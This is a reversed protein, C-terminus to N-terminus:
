PRPADQRYPTRALYLALRAALPPKDRPDPLLAIAREQWTVAADFDGASACAAALTDLLNPRTRGTLDCARTASAVARPADRLTPDPCTALLRALEDLADPDDPRLHVAEGLDAMAQAFQGMRGRVVGRRHYATALKPDLRIADTQDDVARMLDGTEAFFAGRDTFPLPSRPDLRIAETLDAIARDFERRDARVLGRHHYLTPDAPDLRVAEDLDALAADLVRRDAWVLARNHRAQAFGPDLRIAESFDALARDLEGKARWASGRNDRAMADAPDLRIAETLDAVALDYEGRLLRFNGRNQLASAYSPDLRVAEDYDALAKADDGKLRWVNARSNRYAASRPDLRIAEDYDALARDYERKKGWEIGRDYCAWASPSSDLLSRLTEPEVPSRLFHVTGDAILVHFGGPHYSSAAATSPTDPDLVLDDPETWPVGQRTEVVAIGRPRGDAGAGVRYMRYNSLSAVGGPAAPCAFVAPMAALLPRNHPGDWPEDLRFKRYLAEEGLFPLLEVRWSLLPRGARDAVAPRPFGQHAAAYDQLARGLCAENGVCTSRRAVERSASAVPVILMVVPILVCGVAGLVIGAVAMGKGRLGEKGTERAIDSLADAGLVIAPLGAFLTCFPSLLGLVLAAVAKRSVPEPDPVFDALEVPPGEAAPKPVVFVRGCASCMARRGANAESTRYSRGCECHVEVSM